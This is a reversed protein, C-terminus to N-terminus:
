CQFFSERLFCQFFSALRYRLVPCLVVLYAIYSLVVYFLKKYYQIIKLGIHNKISLFNNQYKLCSTCTVFFNHEPKTLSL